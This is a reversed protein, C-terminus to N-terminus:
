SYRFINLKASQSTRVLQEEVRLCFLIINGVERFAQFVETKLDRYQM